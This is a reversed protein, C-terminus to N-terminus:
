CSHSLMWTNCFYVRAWLMLLPLSSLFLQVSIFSDRNILRSGAAGCHGHWWWHMSCWSGEEVETPQCMVCRVLIIWQCIYACWKPLKQFLKLNGTAGRLVIPASTWLRCAKGVTDFWQLCQSRTLFFWVADSRERDM